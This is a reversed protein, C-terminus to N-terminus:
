LLPKARVRRLTGAGAPTPYRDRIAHRPYTGSYRLCRDADAAAQGGGGPRRKAHGQVMRRAGIGKLYPM